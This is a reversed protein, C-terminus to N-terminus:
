IEDHDEQEDELDKEEPDIDPPPPDQNDRFHEGLFRRNLRDSVGDHYKALAAEVYAECGADLEEIRAELLGIHQLIPQLKKHRKRQMRQLGRYAGSEDLGWPTHRSYLQSMALFMATAVFAEAFLSARLLYTGLASSTEVPEEESLLVELDTDLGESAVDTLGTGFHEPFWYLFLGGMTIGIGYVIRAYILRSRETTLCREAFSELMVGTGVLLFSFLLADLNSDFYPSSMLIIRLQNVALGLAIVLVSGYLAMQMRSWRDWPIKDGPTEEVLKVQKFHGAIVDLDGQICAAPQKLFGLFRSYIPRRKARSLAYRLRHTSTLLAKPNPMDSCVATAITDMDLPPCPEDKIRLAKRIRRLLIGGSPAGRPGDEPVSFQKKKAM